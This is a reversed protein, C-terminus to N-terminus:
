SDKPVILEFFVFITIKWFCDQQWSFLSNRNPGLLIVVCLFVICVKAEVYALCPQKLNATVSRLSLNSPILVGEYLFIWFPSILWRFVLSGCCVTVCGWAALLWLWLGRLWSSRLMGQIAKPGHCWGLWVLWGAFNFSYWINLPFCSLSQDINKVRFISKM